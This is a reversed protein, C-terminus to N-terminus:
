LAARKKDVEAMKKTDKLYNYVESMNALLEKYKANEVPKLSAQADYYAAVKDGYSVFENMATKTKATLDAKKKVDEPKTGKVLNAAISLDSSVNYLHKTMLVSADVGKDNAIATKLTATLKDKAAIEDAPKKDGVYLANFQDIAYNYVMLFNAPNKAIMEEYKAFLITKDGSKKVEARVAEMEVDTWYDNQPYFRKAKELIPQLSTVDQKKNYYDVLFEYVEEYQKESVNNDTLKRYHVIAEEEKKAQMASIATNLILSTDFANLKVDTYTYKKDLIFSEVEQTAKFANYASEFDKANFASAGVDYLSAYLNLYSGYMETKMRLDLKDLEQNKKFAEFAQMKLNFQETAPLTKDYSYANYVRGKYYWADSKSTNKPDAMHKDIAAKADAYKEATLLKNIEDLTQANVAFSGLCLALVISFKTM